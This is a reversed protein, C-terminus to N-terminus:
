ITRVMLGGHDYLSKYQGSVSVFAEFNRSVNVHLFHGNDRILGNHTKRWYDSRGLAKVRLSSFQAGSENFQISEIESVAPENSWEM